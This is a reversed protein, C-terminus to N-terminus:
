PKTGHTRIESDIVSCVSFFTAFLKDAELLESSTFQTKDSGYRYSNKSAKVIQTTLEPLSKRIVDILPTTELVFILRKKKDFNFTFIDKWTLKRHYYFVGEKWEGMLFGLLANHLMMCIDLLEIPNLDRILFRTLGLRVSM